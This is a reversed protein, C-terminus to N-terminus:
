YGFGHHHPRAKTSLAPSKFIRNYFNYGHQPRVRKRHSRLLSPHPVSPRPTPEIPTGDRETAPTAEDPTEPFLVPGKNSIKQRTQQDLQLSPPEDYTPRHNRPLEVIPSETTQASHFSFLPPSPEVPHLSKVPHSLEVPHSSKVPHIAKGEKTVIANFGHEPDSTYDVTRVSGDPEVLSYQGKV